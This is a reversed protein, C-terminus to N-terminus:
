RRVPVPALLDSVVRLLAPRLQEVPPLQEGTYGAGSTLTFAAGGLAVGFRLQDEITAAPPCMASSLQVILTNARAITPVDVLSQGQNIFTHVEQRYALLFDVFSEVFALRSADTAPSALWLQLIRELEDIAPALVADLLAEKSAFHYLVSSKSYGAIDAIQQLSTAAFGVAAFQDRAVARLEASPRPRTSLVPAESTM